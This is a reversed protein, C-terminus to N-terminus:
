AFRTEKSLPLSRIRRGTLAFVANALAPIVVPTAIEGVGGIEESTQLIQTHMRPCQSIRMADFSDFNTQDVAGDTITIEQGIASSLGYVAGSVLQDRITDPDLAIGVDAAIWVDTIRVADAMGSAEVIAAVHSGFCSTFAVGRARGDGPMWDAMRAVAQLTGAAAPFRDLLAVRFAVPDAGTQACAEDLFSELFYTNFSYGVSRWFGVPVSTKPRLGSVRFDAIGYPQDYAGEVVIREPGAVPLFPFLRKGISAMVSPSAIRMDLAVLTGDDALRARMRSAAAPRYTDHTMDEERRVIMKVPRGGAQEALATAILAYDIEGRRGFSGGSPLVHVTTAEASVGALDACQGRVFTPVQTGCWVDLAGDRLRATANVPEMAAHALFPVEYDATLLRDSATDALAADVDGDDRLVMGREDSALAARLAAVTDEDPGPEEWEVKIADAAQFAAFSHAAVVGFGHQGQVTIPFVAEVGPMSRALDLDASKAAAGFRPAMRVTGFLMEPLRVDMGFVAAGTSKAPVDIRAQGKGLLTWQETPKLPLDDPVDVLSAAEAIQSLAVTRGDGAEVAGQVLILSQPDAGFHQGAAQLLAYRCAAGARRMKGFGDRVSTSAGTIQLGFIRSMAGAASRMAETMAGDDFPLFPGGERAIVENSYAAGPPGHIVTVADLPLGLEECVLAALTTAIGQGVDARAAVVTIASDHDVLIWPNFVTDGEGARAALPNDPDRTAAHYGVALAGVVMGTGVLFTRRAILALRAM